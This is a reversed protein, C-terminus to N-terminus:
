ELPPLMALADRLHHTFAVGGSRNLHGYDLYDSDAPPQFSGAPMSMWASGTEDALRQMRASFQSEAMASAFPQVSPHHASPLLVVSIGRSRFLEIVRTLDAVSEESLADVPAFFYAPRDGAPRPRDFTVGGQPGLYEVEDWSTPRGVQRWSATLLYRSLGYLRSYDLMPSLSKDAWASHWPGGVEPIAIRFVASDVNGDPTLRRPNIFLLVRRLRPFRDTGMSRLLTQQSRFTQALYSANFVANAPLGHDAAFIDPQFQTMALSDGLVLVRVDPAAHRLRDAVAVYMALTTGYVIRVVQPPASAAARLALEAAILLVLLTATFGRNVLRAM